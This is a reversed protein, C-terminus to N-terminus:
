YISVRVFLMSENTKLTALHRLPYCQQQAGRHSPTRPESGTETNVHEGKNKQNEKSYELKRECDLYM